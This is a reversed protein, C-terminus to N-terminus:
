SLKKGMAHTKEEKRKERPFDRVSGSGKQFQEQFVTAFVAMRVFIGNEVQQTIVSHKGDATRDDLELGRNIPGPHMVICDPKAMRLTRENIQYLSAYEGLSSILGSNMREKQFRLAMIVDADKIGTMLDYHVSAPLMGTHRPMLTLPGVLRVNANLKSLLWLNSRAVRSHQVDGVIAINLGEIRGKNELITLADALAQTPHEHMGDGANIVPGEFFRAALYPAGSAHHRMVLGDIGEHKLTLVTDKLTEGKAMSSGMVGFSTVEIRLKRAAQEFSVRTRTSNEFFLMGVVRGSLDPLQGGSLVIQKLEKALSILGQIQETSLERISLLHM